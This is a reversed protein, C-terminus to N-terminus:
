VPRSPVRNRREAPDDIHFSWIGAAAEASLNGHGDMVDPKTSTSGQGSWEEACRFSQPHGPFIDKRLAVQGRPRADVASTRGM